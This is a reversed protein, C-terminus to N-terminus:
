NTATLFTQVGRFHLQGDTQEHKWEQCEDSFYSQFVDRNRFIAPDLPHNSSPNHYVRLGDLLTEKYDKKSAVIQHPMPGSMNQRAASFVINPNPDKSLARVKGWSACSSFIVASVEQMVNDQFVGLEVIAGNDKTVSTMTSKPPPSNAPDNAMWREEDVYYGYLLAEIARQCTLNFYPRDFAAIAVVFPKGEVHPLARYKDVYKKHKGHLANSLRIITQRNFENLDEPPHAGAQAHEPLTGEAHSAVTAEISFPPPTVVIFDPSPKTFDVALRLERLAAHLYLEWFSSNFTKQFETVFKGDRDVFGEAWNQIVERDWRNPRSIQTAFNPHWSDASVVPSFLDLTRQM